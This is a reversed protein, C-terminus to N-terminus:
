LESTEYVVYYNNEYAKAVYPADFFAKPFHIMEEKLLHPFADTHMYLTYMGPEVEGKYFVFSDIPEKGSQITGYFSESDRALGASRLTHLRDSFGAAPHSNHQNFYIFHNLPVFAYLEPIGSDLVVREHIASDRNLFEALELLGPRLLAARSRVARVDPTDSFTGFFLLPALLLVGIIQVTRMDFSPWKEKASDMVRQVGYGAALALITTQFFLFGKSEQLPTAFFFLTVMGMIQWMYSAAFLGLLIRIPAHHRWIVLAVLGFLSIVGAVSFSFVPGHTGIWDVVFFGFQWNESGYEAYSRALPLWFPVGVLLTIGGVLLLVGYTQFSTKGKEFLFYIGIGIAALFFWFYFLTFLIGGTIGFVLYSSVSLQGEKIRILLFVTWLIVLAASVLEYPKTIIADWGVLLFIFLASLLWATRGPKEEEKGKEWFKKQVWYFGAPFFAMTSAAAVKAIQVGNWDFIRGVLGFVWFFLPPYFPPLHAYAFDSLLSGHAFVQYMAAITIEDGKLGWFSLVLDDVLVLYAVASLGGALLLFVVPRWRRYVAILGLAVFVFFCIKVLLIHQLDIYSFVTSM